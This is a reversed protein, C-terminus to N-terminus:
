RWQFWRHATCGCVGATSIWFCLAHPILTGFLRAVRRVQQIVTIPLMAQLLDNSVKQQMVLTKENVFLLYEALFTQRLSSELLFGVFANLVVFLVLVGMIDFRASFPVDISSTFHIMLGFALVLIGSVLTIWVARIPTFSPTLPPARFYPCQM